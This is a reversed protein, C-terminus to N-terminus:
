NGTDSGPVGPTMSPGYRHSTPAGYNNGGPAPTGLQAPNSGLGAPTGDQGSLGPMTGQGPISPTAGQGTMGPTSNNGYINPTVSPPHPASNFDLGPPTGGTTSYPKGPPVENRMSRCGAATLVTGMTVVWTGSALVRRLRDM